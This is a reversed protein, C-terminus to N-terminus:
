MSFTSLKTFEAKHTANVTDGDSMDLASQNDEDHADRISNYYLLPSAVGQFQDAVGSSLCIAPRM